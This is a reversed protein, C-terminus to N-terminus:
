FKKFENKIYIIKLIKLMMGIFYLIVKNKRKYSFLRFICFDVFVFYSFVYDDWDELKLCIILKKSELELEVNKDKIGYYM